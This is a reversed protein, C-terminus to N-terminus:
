RDELEWVRWWDDFSIAKGLAKAHEQLKSKAYWQGGSHYVAAIVVVRGKGPAQHDLWATLDQRVRTGTFVCDDLYVFAGDPSGCEDINIGFREALVDGFMKRIDHQSGGGKQIDLFNARRWFEAPTKGALKENAALNWLFGKFSERSIYTHSLVRTTEDLLPLQVEEPFQCIWREVVEPTRPAIAGVRYDAIIKSISETLEERSTSMNM